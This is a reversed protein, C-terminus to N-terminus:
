NATHALVVASRGTDVELVITRATLRPLLDAARQQHEPTLLAFDADPVVRQGDPPVIRAGAHFAMRNGTPVIEGLLRGVGYERGEVAKEISHFSASLDAEDHIRRVLATPIGPRNMM